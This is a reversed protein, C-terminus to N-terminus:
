IVYLAHAVTFVYIQFKFEGFLKLEVARQM